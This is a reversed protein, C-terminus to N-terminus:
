RKKADSGIRRKFDRLVKAENKLLRALRDLDRASLSWLRMSRDIFQGKVVDFDRCGAAGFKLYARHRHPDVGEITADMVSGGLHRLRVRDGIKFVPGRRKTQSSEASSM